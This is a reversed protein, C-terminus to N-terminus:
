YSMQGYGEPIKGLEIKLKVALYLYSLGHKEPTQKMEIQLKEFISEIIERPTVPNVVVNYQAVWSSDTALKKLKEYDKTMAAIDARICKDYGDAGNSNDLLIGLIEEDDKIKKFGYQLLGHRVEPKSDRALKILIDRHPQKYDTIAVCYRVNWDSDNSLSEIMPRTISEVRALVTKSYHESTSFIKEVTQFKTNPNKLVANVVEGNKVDAFKDLLESDKTEKVIRVLTEVSLENLNILIKM